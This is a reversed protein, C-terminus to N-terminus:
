PPGQGQLTCTSTDSSVRQGGVTIVECPAAGLSGCKGTLSAFWRVEGSLDENQRLLQVRLWQSVHCTSVDYERTCIALLSDGTVTAPCDDFLSILGYALTEGSCILEEYEDLALLEGSLCDRVTLDIQWTGGWATPITLGGQDGFGLQFRAVDHLDVDGDNDFDARAFQALACDVPPSLADPGSLCEALLAIDGLNCSCDGNLDTPADSCVVTGGAAQTPMAAVVPVIPLASRGVSSDGISKLGIVAAASVAAFALVAGSRYM